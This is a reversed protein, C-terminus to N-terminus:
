YLVEITALFIVSFSHNILKLEIRPMRFTLVKKITRVDCEKGQSRM